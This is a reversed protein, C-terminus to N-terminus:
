NQLPSIKVWGLPAVPNEGQYLIRCTKPFERPDYEGRQSRSEGLRFRKRLDMSLNEDANEDATFLSTVTNANYGTGWGIQLFFAGQPLKNNATILRDYFNAIEPLDYDDYFAQESDIHAATEARCVEAIDSLTKVHLDTFGLQKKERERFLQEDTKLTFTLRKGPQIHEVFNKYERRNEVKQVLKDNPNLTVTWALGIELADSDLPTTDSVQLARLLDHNPDKGFAISEIRRAPQERRPNGRPGQQILTKIQRLSEDYIADSADLIEGFLATRIVGKLTSGPIYPRKGVTKLAERIEVTEPSQRCPLSYVSVDAPDINHAQLYRQWRFDRRGMEATLANLDTTPHALVKELDIQYWKGNAYYGDIHNLVEGTGIHVPTIVQLQYKQKM